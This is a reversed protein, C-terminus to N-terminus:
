TVPTAEDPDSEGEDLNSSDEDSDGEDEDPDREDGDFDAPFIVTTHAFDASLETARDGFALIPSYDFEGSASASPTFQMGYLYYPSDGAAGYRMLARWWDTDPSHSHRSKEYRGCHEVTSATISHRAILWRALAPRRYAIATTLMRAALEPAVDGRTEWRITGLSGNACAAIMTDEGSPISLDFHEVLWRAVDLHGATFATFLAENARPSFQTTLWQAVLLFGRACTRHFAVGLARPDLCPMTQMICRAAALNGNTCARDLGGWLTPPTIAGGAIFWRITALDSRVCATYFADVVADPSHPILSLILRAVEGSVERILTWNFRIMDHYERLYWQILPANDSALVLNAADYCVVSPTPVGFQRIVWRVDRPSGARLAHFIMTADGYLPRVDSFHSLLWRATKFGGNAIAACAAVAVRWDALKFRTVLWRAVDVHDGACAAELADRLGRAAGSASHVPRAAALWRALELHGNACADTFGTLITAKCPEAESLLWQLLELHGRECAVRVSDRVSEPRTDAEVRDLLWAAAALHGDFCVCRLANKFAMDRPLRAPVRAYALRDNSRQVWQEALDLRGAECMGYMIDLANFRLSFKHILWQIMAHDGSRQVAKLAAEAHEAKVRTLTALWSAVHLHGGACSDAFAAGVVTPLAAVVVLDASFTLIWDAIDLHGKKCADVFIQSSQPITLVVPEFTQACWRAVALHGGACADVLGGASPCDGLAALDFTEDLWQLKTLLGRACAHVFALKITERGTAGVFGYAADLM